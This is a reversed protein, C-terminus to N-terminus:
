DKPHFNTLFFYFSIDVGYVLGCHDFMVQPHTNQAHNEAKVLQFDYGFCEEVPSTWGNFLCAVIRKPELRFTALTALLICSPPRPPRQLGGWRPDFFKSNLAIQRELVPKPLHTFAQM